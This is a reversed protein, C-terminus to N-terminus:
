FTPVISNGSSTPLSVWFVPKCNDYNWYDEALRDVEKEIIGIVDLGFVVQEM